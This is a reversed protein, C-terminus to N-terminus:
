RFNGVGETRCLCSSTIAVDTKSLQVKLKTEFDPLEEAADRLRLCEVLGHLAWVNDPHQACRQLDDNLGLDTRYVQEAEDFQGQEVLLAALAHRPPHMWAWPETYALNDDRQVSERLHAFATPYNGKAYELEGDLMKEGVALIAQACNNFFKRDKPIRKLSHHFR